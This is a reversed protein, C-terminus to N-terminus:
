FHQWEVILDRNLIPSHTFDRSLKAVIAATVEQLYPLHQIAEEGMHLHLNAKHPLTDNSITMEHANAM